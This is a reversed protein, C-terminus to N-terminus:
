SKLFRVQSESMYSVRDLNVNQIVQRSKGALTLMANENIRNFLDVSVVDANNINENIHTPQPISQVQPQKYIENLNVDDMYQNLGNLDENTRQRNRRGQYQQQNNNHQISGNVRTETVFDTTNWGDNVNENINQYVPTENLSQWQNQNRNLNEYQNYSQNINNSIIDEIGNEKVQKFLALYEDETM